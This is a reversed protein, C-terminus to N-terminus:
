DANISGSVPPVPFSVAELRTAADPKTIDGAFVVIRWRCDAKMAKALPMANADCFRVVQASPFREGVLLNEPMECEMKEPMVVSSPAYRTALGATYKGAEVFKNRFEEASINHEKRYKSSFLRTWSRDFEILAAATNQRESVYTELLAPAAQGTLVMGLKWGVNFGDQLSVNMGQGAKPSHTHCADGTLFVRFEKHFNDALRQGIAYGSWWTTEAIDMRYPRFIARALSHLKELTVDAARTGAPQELYFRVLDNGERPVILLMGASSHIATKKRIDPFDTLPYVDMVGWVTDTSDGIM